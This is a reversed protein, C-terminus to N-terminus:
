RANIMIHNQQVYRETGKRVSESNSDSFATVLEEPTRTTIYEDISGYKQELREFVEINGKLAKMQKRTSMNGCKLYFLEEALNDPDQVKIYEADYNHFIRDISPLLPQIRSWVTQNTLLSYIMARIHDCKDFVKGDDREKISSIADANYIVQRKELYDKIVFLYHESEKGPEM